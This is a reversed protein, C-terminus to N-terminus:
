WSTRDTFLPLLLLLLLLLLQFGPKKTVEFSLNLSTKYV